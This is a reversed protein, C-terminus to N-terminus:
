PANSQTRGISAKKKGLLLQKKKTQMTKPSLFNSSLKVPKLISTANAPSTTASFVEQHIIAAHNSLRSRSSAPGNAGFSDLERQKLKNAVQIVAIKTFGKM